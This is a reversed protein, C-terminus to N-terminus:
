SFRNFVNPAQVWLELVLATRIGRTVRSVNHFKESPFIVGDGLGVDHAVAAGETWTVFHGGDFTKPDSLLISMSVKSGNDRHDEMTLGAGVGYEHHEACRVFLKGWSADNLAEQGVMLSVLRALLAPWEAEFFGARHLYKVRHVGGCASVRDDVDALRAAGAALSAMEASSLVNRLLVCPKVFEAEFPDDDCWYNALSRGTVVKADGATGARWALWANRAFREAAELGLPVVVAEEDEANM